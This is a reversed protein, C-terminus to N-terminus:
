QNTGRLAEFIKISAKEINKLKLECYAKSPEQTSYRDFMEKVMSYLITASNAKDKMTEGQSYVVTAHAYLKMQTLSQLVVLPEDCYDKTQNALGAITVYAGREMPDSKTELLACGVLMLSALILTPVRINM